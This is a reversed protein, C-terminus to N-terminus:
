GENDLVSPDQPRIFNIIEQRGSVGSEKEIEREAVARSIEQELFDYVMEKRINDVSTGDFINNWGKEFRDRMEQKKTETM